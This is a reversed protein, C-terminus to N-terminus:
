RRKVGTTVGMRFYGVTRYYVDRTKKREGRGEEM